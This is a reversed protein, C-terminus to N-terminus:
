LPAVFPLMLIPTVFSLSISVDVPFRVKSEAPPVTTTSSMKSTFTLASISLTRISPLSISVVVPPNVSSEALPVTVISSLKVIVPSTFPAVTLKLPSIVAALPMNPLILITGPLSSLSISVVVPFRIKTEADPM